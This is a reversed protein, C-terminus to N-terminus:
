QIEDNKNTQWDDLWSATEKRLMKSVKVIKLNIKLKYIIFQYRWCENNAAGCRITCGSSKKERRRVWEEWGATRCIVSFTGARHEGWGRERALTVSGTVWLFESDQDLLSVISNICVCVCTCACMCLSDLRTVRLPAESEGGSMHVYACTSFKISVCFYCVHVWAM